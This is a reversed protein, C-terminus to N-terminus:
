GVVGDAADLSAGALPLTVVFAAGRGDAGDRLDVVGGLAEVSTKVIALGIGTGRANGATAGRYFRDFVRLREHPPVGPGEDSVVIEATEGVRRAVIRIPAGAPSFKAANTLLNGIVHSVTEPPAVVTLDDAVEVDVPAGHLAPELDAVIAEIGDRLRYPESAALHLGAELTSFTLIQERLRRLEAANSAARQLSEKKLDDPMEDWRGLVTGVFLSKLRDTEAVKEFALARAVTVSAQRAYANLLDVDEDDVERPEAFYANLVGIPNDPSGLPVAVISRADYRELTPAAWAFRADAALDPVAVIKGERMALGSPSHEPRRLAKRLLDRLDDPLGAGGAVQLADPLDDCPLLVMVATAGVAQRAAEAISDTTASLTPDTALSEL